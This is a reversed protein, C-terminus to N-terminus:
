VIGYVNDLGCSCLAGRELEPVADDLRCIFRNERRQLVLAWFCDGAKTKLRIYNGEQLAKLEDWGPLVGCLGYLQKERKTDALKM